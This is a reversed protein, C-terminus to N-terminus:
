LCALSMTVCIGWENTIAPSAPARQKGEATGDETMLLVTVDDVDFLPDPFGTARVTINVYDDTGETVTYNQPLFEVFIDAFFTLQHLPLSPQGLTSAM